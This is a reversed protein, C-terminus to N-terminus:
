EHRLAEMPEIAAARLSPILCALVTGVLLILPVLLFTAPDDTSVNYLFKSLLRDMALAALIGIGLGSMALLLAERLILAVAGRRSSGLAMRIGIEGTRQRVSFAFLGYIGIMALLLAIGAFISLLVTQFRRRATAETKLDGMTHVDSFALNPDASHIAARIQKVLIGAPLSANVAIFAGKMPSLDTDTQWLCTYEQPAASDEISMNRVDGIVGVVTRWPEDSSGRLHRGVADITGFYKLALAHNVIVAVPHGPSDEKTFGRGRLVPIGMASFYEPTVRRSEVLQNKENPYGQVEFMSLSETDSLPLHDVIGAANVGHVARLKQLVQEFFVARKEAKAFRATPSPILQPSLQPSLQVSGTVTSISFGTPVSQLKEYSRLLLGSGSLLVVVVSIQAIALWKRLSAGGGSIGRTGIGKLFAAVDIRSAILSPLIGFLMSTLLSAGGLFGLARYDIEASEMRPINGPNLMLLAHLFVWALGIGLLGAAITLLVSETLLQRLLRGPRAGLTARVGLEHTRTIARALLLNAANGCAILLVLCVAGLLLLMLPRAPGLSIATFFQVYASWGRDDPGHLLNLRPMTALMEAQAEKITVGPKLRALAYGSSGGRTSKQDPTLALPIWIQTRDIHGNGFAVEYKHPYEFDSPMVGIVQYGTGDLLIERGIADPAGALFTQWLSHSIIVERDKGPEFDGKGFLQGMAPAVQLVSFFDADVKAAGVRDAARDNALNYTAQTFLTMESFSHSGKQLDFFDGSSIGFIEPPLNFRPNPTFLYVLREADGYPLSRLLAANVLSFIATCAGIGLALTFIIIATFSWQKAFSRLGFRIDQVLDEAWSTGRAEYCDETVTVLGGFSSIAEARARDPVMGLAINQEITRDLHFQLEESLELNSIEKSRFSRLRRILSRLVRM